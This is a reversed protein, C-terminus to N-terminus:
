QIFYSIAKKFFKSKMTLSSKRIRNQSYYFDFEIDKFQMSERERELVVPLGLLGSCYFMLVQQSVRGQIYMILCSKELENFQYYWLQEASTHLM